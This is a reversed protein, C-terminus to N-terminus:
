AFEQLDDWYSEKEDIEYYLPALMFDKIEEVSSFLNVGLSLKVYAVEPLMDKLHIAGAENLLRLNKYVYPHVAGYITQSTVGIFKEEANRKIVKLLGVNEKVNVHGLGTGEIIIGKYENLFYELDDGHMGPYYKVLAVENSYKGNVLKEKYKLNPEFKIGDNKVRISKASLNIHVEGKLHYNVSRFADRRSTHLKRVRTGYHVGFTEDSTSSHMCVFVGKDQYHKIFEIAAIMNLPADSSPRDSSRQSGVMVVPIDVVYPLIFSLAASSYHMTDTGHGVIVGKYKGKNIESVIREIMINWENPTLNESMEQMISEADLNIEPSYWSPFMAILDNPDMSAVVGGTEYEVKSAITGGTSLILIGERKKHPKKEKGESGFEEIVDISAIEDKKIALNYGSRLKLIVIDDRDYKTLPMEIGEMIKGNKLRVRIRKYM